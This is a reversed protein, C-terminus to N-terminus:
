CTHTIIEFENEKIYIECYRGVRLFDAPLQNKAFPNPIYILDAGLKGLYEHNWVDHMSFIVGTIFDYKTSTFALQDVLSENKKKISGSYRIGENVAKMTSKNFIVYRDGIPFLAALIRPYGQETRASSVKAGSIAIVVAEDSKILGSNIYKMIKKQKEFFSNTYRLTIQKDPVDQAEWTLPDNPDYSIDEPVRDPNDPDGNTASVCEIWTGM